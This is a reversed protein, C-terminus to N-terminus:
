SALSPSSTPSSAAVLPRAGQRAKRKILGGERRGEKEEDGGKDRKDDADGRLDRGTALGGTGAFCPGALVNM